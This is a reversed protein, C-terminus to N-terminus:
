SGSVGPTIFNDLNLYIIKNTSPYSKITFTNDIDISQTSGTFYIKSGVKVSQTEQTTISGDSEGADVAQITNVGTNKIGVGSITVFGGGSIGYTGVLAIDNGSASARVTKTLEASTASLIDAHWNSFDIKAGIAKQISSSGKARLTMTEGDEFATSTSFTITNTSTDIAIITTTASPATTGKHYVLEMGTGIDTLDAVTVTNNSVADGAPNSSIVETTQFYWDTDIPQRILRLGFGYTNNSINTLTWDLTKTATANTQSPNSTSVINDGSSWTTYNNTNATAVTFTLTSDVTQSLNASFSKKGYGFNLETDKDPPALLLLTYTKGSGDAPFLVSTRFIDSEMKVKLINNSNFGSEFTKTNFNYFQNSSNFVQLSFEADIDGSITLTRQTKTSPIDSLDIEFRNITKM